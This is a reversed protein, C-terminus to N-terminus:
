GIKADLGREDDSHRGIYDDGGSYKNILIGNYNYNFKTNVYSLLEHLCYHM